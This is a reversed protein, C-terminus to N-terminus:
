ILAFLIQCCIDLSQLLQYNLYGTGSVPYNALEDTQCRYYFENPLDHEVRYLACWDPRQFLPTLFVYLFCAVIHVISITKHVWTREQELAGKKMQAKKYLRDDFEMDALKGLVGGREKIM